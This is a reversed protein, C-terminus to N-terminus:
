EEVEVDKEEENEPFMDRYKEHIEAFVSSLGRVAAPELALLVSCDPEQEVGDVEKPNQVEGFEILIRDKGFGARLFNASLSYHQGSKLEVYDIDM